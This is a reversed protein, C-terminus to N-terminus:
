RYEFYNIKNRLNINDGRKHIVGRGKSASAGHSEGDLDADRLLPHRLDDLEVLVHGHHVGTGDDPVLDGVGVQSLTLLEGTFKLKIKM